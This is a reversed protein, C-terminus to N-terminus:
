VETDHIRGSFPFGDNWVAGVHEHAGDCVEDEPEIAVTGMGVDTVESLEGDLFEAGVDDLVAVVVGGFMENSDGGCPLVTDKSDAEFIVTM